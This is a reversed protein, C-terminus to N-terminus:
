YDEDDNDYDSPCQSLALDDYDSNCSHGHDCESDSGGGGGNNSADAVVQLDMLATRVTPTFILRVAESADNAVSNWTTPHCWRSPLNNKTVLWYSLIAYVHPKLSSKSQIGAANLAISVHRYTWDEAYDFYNPLLLASQLDAHVYPPHQSTDMVAVSVGRVAFDHRYNAAIWEFLPDGMRERVWPIYAHQFNLAAAIVAVYYKSLTAHDAMNDCVSTRVLPHPPFTTVPPAPVLAANAGIGIGVGVGRGGLSRCGHGAVTDSAGVIASVSGRAASASAVAGRRGVVNGSTALAVGRGRTAAANSRGRGRGRGATVITSADSNFARLRADSFVAGPAPSGTDTFGVAASWQRLTTSQKLDRLHSLSGPFVRINCAARVRTLAVYLYAVTLQNGGKSSLDVIVKNLTAGQCKHVTSAFLLDVSPQVFKLKNKLLPDTCSTVVSPKAGSSTPPIPIVLRGPVISCHELERRVHDPIDRDASHLKELSINVAKPARPLMIVSGYAPRHTNIHEQVFQATEDDLHLSHYVATTGNALGKSPSVNVLLICPAGVVFYATMEEYLAAMGDVIASSTSAGAVGGLSDLVSRTFTHRWAFVYRNNAKAFHAAMTRNIYMRAFNTGVLIRTCRPDAWSQDSAVDAASIPKLATVLSATVPHPCLNRLNSMRLTHERDGASRMQQTLSYVQMARALDCAQESAVSARGGAADSGVAAKILSTGICELQHYDGLLVVVIGGFRLRNGRLNQLSQNVSLLTQSTLMSVEDIVLVRCSPPINKLLSVSNPAIGPRSGSGVQIKLASHLTRAGQPLLTAAVGTTATYVVQSGAGIFRQLTSLIHSKGTGAPGHVMLFPPDQSGAAPMTSRFQLWRVLEQFVAFQGDNLGAAAATAPLASPVPAAPPALILGGRPEGSGAAGPQGGDTACPEIADDAVEAEDACRVSQYASNVTENDVVLRVGHQLHAQADGDSDVHSTSTGTTPSATVSPVLVSVVVDASTRAAGNARSLGASPPGSSAGPAAEAAARVSSLMARAAALSLASDRPEHALEHLGGADVHTSRARLTFESLTDVDRNRFATLLRNAKANRRLGTDINACVARCCRGPFSLPSMWESNIIAERDPLGSPLSAGDYTYWAVFCHWTLPLPPCGTLLSWPVFLTLHFQAVRQLDELHRPDSECGSPDGLPRRPPSPGTLQPIVARSRLVQVHTNHLPHQRGFFFRANPPRGRGRAIANEVRQVSADMDGAKRPVTHVLACYEYLSFLALGRGRWRYHQEQSVFSPRGDTVYMHRSEVTAGADAVDSRDAFFDAEPMLEMDNDAHSITSVHAQAPQQSQPPQQPQQPEAVDSRDAFFDAEPMIEMNNDPNSITSLRAQPPQPDSGATSTPGDSVAPLLGCTRQLALAYKVAQPIFCYGFRHSYSEHEGRILCLSVTTACAEHTLSNLMRTLLHKATRNDTGSDDARSPYRSIHQFADLLVPVSHTLELRDKSLYKTTYYVMVVAAETNGTINVSTNSQTTASIVRSHCVMWANEGRVADDALLVAAEQPSCHGSDQLIRALYEVFARRGEAESVGPSPRFIEVTVVRRDRPPFPFRPNSDVPNAVAYSPM